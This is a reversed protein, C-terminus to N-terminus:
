GDMVLWSVETLKSKVALPWLGRCWTLDKAQGEGANRFAKYSWGLSVSLHWPIQKEATEGMSTFLPRWVVPDGISKLPDSNNEELAWSLRSITQRSLTAWVNPLCLTKTRICIYLGWCSLFFQLFKFSSILSKFFLFDHKDRSAKLQSKLGWSTNEITQTQFTGGLTM